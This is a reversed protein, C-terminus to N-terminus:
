GCQWEPLVACYYLHVIQAARNDIGANPSLSSPAIKHAATLHAPHLVPQPFEEMSSCGPEKEVEKSM